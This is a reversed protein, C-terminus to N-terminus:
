EKIGPLVDCGVRRHNPWPSLPFSEEDGLDCIVAGSPQIPYPLQHALGAKQRRRAKWARPSQFIHFASTM